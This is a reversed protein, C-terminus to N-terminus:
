SVQFDDDYDLFSIVAPRSMFSLDAEDLVLLDHYDPKFKSKIAELGGISNFPKIHCIKKGMTHTVFKTKGYGSLGWLWLANWDPLALPVFSDISYTPKSAKPVRDKSERLSTVDNVTRCRIQGAMCAEVLSPAALMETMQARAFEFLAPLKVWRQEPEKFVVKGEKVSYKRGAHYDAFITEMHAITCGPQINPHHYDPFGNEDVLRVDFSRHGKLKIPSRFMLAVHTHKHGIYTINGEKYTTDEWVISYGDLPVSTVMAVMRLIIQDELWAAYTLHFYKGHFIHGEPIVQPDFKFPM